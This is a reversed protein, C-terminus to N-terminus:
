RDEAEPADDSHHAKLNSGAQADVVSSSSKKAGTKQPATKITKKAM